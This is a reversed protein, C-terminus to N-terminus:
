TSSASMASSAFVPVITVWWAAIAPLRPTIGGIGASRAAPTGMAMPVSLLVLSRKSTIRRGPLPIVLTNPSVRPRRRPGNAM